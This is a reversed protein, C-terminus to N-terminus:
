VGEQLLEFGTKNKGSQWMHRNYARILEDHVSISPQQPHRYHLNGRIATKIIQTKHRIQSLEKVVFKQLVRSHRIICLYIFLYLYVLM